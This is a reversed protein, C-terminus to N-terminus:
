PQRGRGVRGAGGHEHRARQGEREEEKLERTGLGTGAVGSGYGRM